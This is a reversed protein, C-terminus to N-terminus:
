EEPQVTLMTFSAPDYYRQIFANVTEVDLAAAKDVMAQDFGPELGNRLEWLANGLAQGPSELDFLQRGQFFGVADSLEEETIGGDHFTVLVDRLKQETTELNDARTFTALAYPAPENGPFKQTYAGYTEGGEHRLAVYLRSFFHGGLVHDAVLWTAYDEDGWTLGDRFYAFYIQTLNKMPEVIEGGLADTNLPPFEAILNVPAQDAPPLLGQAIGEVEERTLDGAFGVARGPLRVLTDRAAALRAADREVKDPEEFEARRPDDEAYLARAVAQKTRFAPDKIQGEWGIDQGQQARKLEDADYSTNALIDKVLAIAEPLDRKLCSVTLGSGTDRTWLTVDAALADARARLEGAEDYNSLTWAEEVHAEQFWPSWSGAPFQLRLEVIPVRHDEVLLATTADDLAWTQVPTARRLEGEIDDDAIDYQVPASPAAEETADQAFAPGLLLLTLLLSRHM